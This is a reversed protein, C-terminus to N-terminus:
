TPARSPASGPVAPPTTSGQASNLCSGLSTRRGGGDNAKQSIFVKRGGKTTTYLKCGDVADYLLGQFPNFGRTGPRGSGKKRDKMAQLAVLHQAETVVAPYCKVGNRYGCVARDKLIRRVYSANWPMRGIHPVKDAILQKLILKVGTGERCLRHILKVAEAAKPKFRYEAKEYNVHRGDERVAGVLELWAPIRATFPKGDQKFKEHKRKWSDKILGSKRKSEENARAMQMIVWMLDFMDLKEHRFEKEPDLTVIVVGAELISLFHKLAVKEEERSLRDMSEVLLYDGRRVDGSDMADLFAKLGEVDTWQKGKFASKGMAMLTKNLPVDPHKKLWGDRLEEQRQVSAGKKQPMSSFRIYSHAQPTM